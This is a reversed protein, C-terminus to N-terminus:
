SLFYDGMSKFVTKFNKEDLSKAPRSNKKLKKGPIKEPTDLNMFDDLEQSTNGVNASMKKIYLFKGM